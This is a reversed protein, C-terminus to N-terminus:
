QRRKRRVLVVAGLMPLLLFGAGVTALTRLRWTRWPMAIKQNRLREFDPEPCSQGFVMADSILAGNKVYTSWLRQFREPETSSVFRAAHCLLAAYAQSRPPVRAAAKEALEAATSRYHFRLTHPPANAALRAREAESNLPLEGLIARAPSGEAPQQVELSWHNVEFSGALWTWDPAVETGMLEMGASRALRAASYLAQAEDLDRWASRAQELAEVYKRAPEEWTTGRFYELAEQGRGGRLLRRALLLRLQAGVDKRENEEVWVGPEPKCQFEPGSAHAAIFRQLEEVTLVQETVYAIDPWSCTKLAHEAAQPFDGRLLALIIREGGVRVRPRMPHTWSRLEWNELEPFGEAAEALFQDAAAKDGRRLALKAKVWAALPTKEQGAFREALDFRGARWASAALRDAGALGPVAALAEMLRPLPMAGDMWRLEEGRTWAYTAMLRQGLPAKLVRPLRAEDQAIARAVFLLSVAGIESGHAAQEAYLSIAGADNGERLLLRAEEGLSAVALGLPDEFGQRVLERVEAFRRWAEEQETGAGAMRGLMFAAFTSFRRREEGPLALVELFRASAEDWHGAHFAKAGSQYLETERAGGGTRAGEPEESSEVVVFVDAPKPLLHSAEHLFTGDPLEALTRARNGLADPPFDPGCARARRVPTLVVLLVLFTM